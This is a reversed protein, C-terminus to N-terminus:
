ISIKVGYGVKDMKLLLRHDMICSKSGKGLFYSTSNTAGVVGLSPNQAEPAGAQPQSGQEYRSERGAPLCSLGSDQETAGV